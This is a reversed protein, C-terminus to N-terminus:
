INENKFVGFLDTLFDPIDNKNTCEACVNNKLASQKGCTECKGLTYNDM